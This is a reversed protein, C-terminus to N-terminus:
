LHSWSGRYPCGGTQRQADDPGPPGRTRAPAPQGPTQEETPNREDTPEESPAPTPEETPEQTPEPTSTPEETPTPMTLIRKGFTETSGVANHATVVLGYEDLPALGDVTVTTEAINEFARFPTAGHWVQVTYGSIPSGGDNPANWSVM